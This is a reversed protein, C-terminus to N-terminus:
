GSRKGAVSNENGQSIQLDIASSVEVGEFDGVQRLEADKDHFVAQANGVVVAGVMLLSLFIYKM